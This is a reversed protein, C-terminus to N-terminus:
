YKNARRGREQALLLERDLGDAIWRLMFSTANLVDGVEGPNHCDVRDLEGAIKRLSGTVDMTQTM